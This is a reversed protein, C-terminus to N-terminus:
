DAIFVGTVGVVDRAANKGDIDGTLHIYRFNAENSWVDRFNELNFTRHGKAHSYMTDSCSVSWGKWSAACLQASVYSDSRFNYTEINIEAAQSPNMDSSIYLPIDLAASFYHVGDYGTTLVQGVYQRTWWALAPSTATILGGFVASVLIVIVATRKM